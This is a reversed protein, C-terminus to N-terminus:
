KGLCIFCPSSLPRRGRSRKLDESLQFTVDKSFRGFFLSAELDNPEEKMEDEDYKMVCKISESFVSCVCRHWFMM